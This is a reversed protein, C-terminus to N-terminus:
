SGANGECGVPKPIANFDNQTAEEAANAPAPNGRMRGTNALPM